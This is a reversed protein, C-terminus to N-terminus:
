NAKKMLQAIARSLRAEGTDERLTVWAKHFVLRGEQLYIIESIIDELDSLIHSTILILRGQARERRIKEKLM